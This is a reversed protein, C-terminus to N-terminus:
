EDVEPAETADEDDDTSAAVAVPTRGRSSMEKARQSILDARSPAPKSAEANNKEKIVANMAASVDASVPLISVSTQVSVARVTVIKAKSQKTVNLSRIYNLAEAETSFAKKVSRSDGLIVGHPQAAWDPKPPRTRTGTTASRPRAM